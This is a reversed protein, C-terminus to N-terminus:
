ADVVESSPLGELEHGFSQVGIDGDEGEVVLDVCDIVFQVIDISQGDDLEEGEISLQDLFLLFFDVQLDILNLLYVADTRSIISSSSLTIHNNVRLDDCSFGVDHTASGEVAAEFVEVKRLGLDCDLVVRLEVFHGDLCGAWDDLVEEDAVGAGVESGAVVVEVEDWAM